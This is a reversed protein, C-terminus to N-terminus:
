GEKEIRDLMERLLPGYEIKSPCVYTCLALDEEVLELCGLAEADEVDKCLLAKLLQIPLLDLPMVKAFADTPVLARVGGNHSTTMARPRNPSWAGLITRSVSFLRRPFPNAWGLFPRKRDEGIVTIQQHFRGLFAEAGAATRGALVSGSIVRWDGPLM